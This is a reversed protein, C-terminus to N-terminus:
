ADDYVEFGHGLGFRRDLPFAAVFAGTAYGRAKLRTAITPFDEALRAGANDRVGHVFPLQGTLINTHSPLTVVNHAHANTFVRGAAALRDMAPTKVNGNGSFGTADARLTDVTVLVVDLRPSPVRAAPPVSARGCSLSGFAVLLVVPLRSVRSASPCAFALITFLGSERHERWGRPILAETSLVFLVRSVRRTKAANSPNSTRNPKGVALTERM